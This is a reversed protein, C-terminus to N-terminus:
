FWNLLHGGQARIRCKILIFKVFWFDFLDEGNVNSDKVELKKLSENRKIKKHAVKNDFQVAKRKKDM